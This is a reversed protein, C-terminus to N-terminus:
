VFWQSSDHQTVEKKFTSKSPQRYYPNNGCHNYVPALMTASKGGYHGLGGKEKQLIGRGKEGIDRNSNEIRGGSCLSLIRINEKVQRM